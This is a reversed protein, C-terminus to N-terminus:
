KAAPEVVTLGPMNQIFDIAPVLTSYSFPATGGKQSPCGNVDFVYLMIVGDADATLDKDIMIATIAEPKPMIGMLQFFMDLQVLADGEILYYPETVGAKFEDLTQVGAVAYECKQATDVTAAQAKWVNGVKIGMWDDQTLPPRQLEEGTGIFGPSYDTPNHVFKMETIPATDLITTAGVNCGLLTFSLAATIGLITNRINM